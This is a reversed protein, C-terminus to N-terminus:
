QAHSRPLGTKWWNSGGPKTQTVLDRTLAVLADDTKPAKWREQAARVKVERQVIGEILTLRHDLSYSKIRLNWTSGVAGAVGAGICAVILLISAIEM